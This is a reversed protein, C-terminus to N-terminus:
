ILGDRVFCAKFAVSFRIDYLDHSGDDVSINAEVTDSIQM